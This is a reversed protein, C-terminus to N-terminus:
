LLSTINPYYKKSIPIGESGECGLDAFNVGGPDKRISKIHTPNVIFCRHTRAFGARECLEEINKMSNRIQFRKEIGNELYHLVIYNENSEIYLVSSAETIFKLQHRNDYFKLRTDNGVPEGNGAELYCYLLSLIFYPYILVSGISSISRGWFAFWTDEGRSTLVLYLATFACSLVIEGLCWFSYRWLTMPMKKRMLWLFLRGLVMVGLIIAFCIVTNFYYLDPITSVNEGTHMLRCLAAPEYLLVAALFSAPIALTYILNPFFRGFAKPYNRM